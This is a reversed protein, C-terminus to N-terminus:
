RRRRRLMLGLLGLLLFLARSPEPVVVLIGHTAFASTDFKFEGTFGAGTFDFNAETLSTNTGSYSLTTWDMLNFVDGVSPAATTYPLGTRNVVKFLPTAVNDANITFTGSINIFDHNSPATTKYADLQGTTFLAAVTTYSGGALADTLASLDPSGLQETRSTISLQVQGGNQVEVATFNLTRNSGDTDDVGPALITGGGLITSGAISGSGSLKTATGSTYTVNVNGAGTLSGSTGDGIQLTGANVTTTGTHLNTGTLVLTGAGAKTLAGTTATSAGSITLATAAQTVDITSTTAANLTFNRDTDATVGTYQLTGGNFVLNAAASTAQGLNGAVGGNGITGVSLVGDTITTIGTYTNVGSLTVTGVTTKNLPKAGTLVASVSGNRLAFTNVVTISGGGVSDIISGSLTASGLIIDAPTSGTTGAIDLIGGSATETSINLDDMSGTLAGNVGLKVTAARIFIDDGLHVNAANLALTGANVIVDDSASNSFATNITWTGLGSKIIDPGAIQSIVGSIIGDGSGDLTVANAGGTIAGAYTIEAGPTGNARLTTAGALTIARNTTQDTTGVFELITSAALSIGNTGQGLSSAGGGNNSVTTFQLTGEALTIGGSFTNAGTLRITTNSAGWGGADDNIALSYGNGGDSIIGSITTFSDADGGDVSISSNGGLVVGGAINLQTAADNVTFRASAGTGGSGINVQGNQNVVFNAALVASTNDLLYEGITGATFTITGARNITQGNLGRVILRGFGDFTIDGPAVTPSAAATIDVSGSTLTLDGSWTSAANNITFTGVEANGGVQTGVSEDSSVTLSGSGSLVGSLTISRATATNPGNSDAMNIFSNASVNVTGSYIQTGTGASLTGGGLTLNNAVTGATGNYYFAGGTNVAVNATNSNAASGLAGANTIELTGASITVDSTLGTNFTSDAAAFITVKGAGSKTVDKEGQLGGSLILTSAADAVNWTQNAGLKLPAAITVTPPGGTTIKIGDTAVQPAVELRNTTVTGPNITVASPTNAPTTSAEFTLSNIKFNQELTTTIAAGGIINDAIFVVDTGQGPISAAATLGDKNTIAWNAVDNWTDAAGGANWYSAGTILNGTTIRVYTDQVDWTFSTFGGPTAGQIFKGLGFASFGGDAATLLTYTTLPNLGADTMNFTITNGLGLTGGTLLNIRDTQLNDGAVTLDGINLSLTATAAGTVGLSLANVNLISGANDGSLSLISGGGVTVSTIASPTTLGGSLTLASGSGTVSLGTTGNLASAITMTGGTVSTTGQYTLTVGAPIIAAGAGTKTISLAGSGSDTITYVGLGSGFDVAADNSGFILSAATASTNDIVITGASNATLGNITETKGNLDLTATVGVAPSIVVNGSETPSGHAIVENNGLKLTGSSVTLTGANRDSATGGLTLSGTGSYTLGINLATSTTINGNIITDGTGNVTLTMNGTLANFVMNGGVTVTKGTAVGNTFVHGATTNALTWNNTLNLNYDGIFASTGATTTSNVSIANGITRDAGYAFLSGNRLLLTGSGFANDHGAGVLVATVSTTGTYTNNGSLIWTGGMDATIGLTGGNDALVSTIMNGQTNAGRLFLTKAGGVMDNLVNTLILAGSGDAHIQTSGTTTNLRIMRDSTEGTGVYQLIGATTGGNGLTIAQGATNASTNIGVSTGAAAAASNGLSNVVLTGQSVDTVGSYTNSGFLQLVGAGHKKIGTGANGSIVGTITAFDTFTSTNDDVRIARLASAAITASVGTAGATADASLTVTTSSDISLIQAGLPIGAGVVVQGVILGATTGTTFTIRADGDVTTITPSLAGGPATGLSFDSSIEVESLATTSNLVLGSRNDIFGTTVGWVPTSGWNVVLKADSAAFGGQLTATNAAPTQFQFQGSGTGITRSFNGSTELVTGAYTGNNVTPGNFILNSATPLTTGSVARLTGGSITTAGTYSNGTNGLVWVGAGIKTVGTLAGGAPNNLIKIDIRNDGTSAGGLTLTQAVGSAAAGYKIENNAPTSVGALILASQNASANAIQAGAGAMAGNLTFLRDISVSSTGTYNIGATALGAFVLSASNNADSVVTQIGRGIGSATGYNALNPISVLKATTALGTGITTVGTYTNLGSWVPAGTTGNLSVNVVGTGDQIIGAFTGAGTGTGGLLLTAASTSSNTVTGGGDFAGIATGSSQGNLDLTAGQRIVLPANAGSLRASNVGLRITGENITTAGTVQANIGNIVLTGAGNKTFGGTTASAINVPAGLAGLNLVDSAGDVRIVVNVGAASGGITRATGSNSQITATGGSQLIAGTSVTLNGSLTLAQNNTVLSSITAAGSAAAVTLKNHVGAVLAAGANQFNGAAGYTPAIVQNSGNIDAFNAGNIYLHGQFNATGLLTTATAATAGSSLTILGGSSGTTDFNVSTAGATAGLSSFTLNTASPSVSNATLKITAAGATPTLAGLMETTASGSFGVFELTGGASGVTTNANFVVTNGAAEGIITSTTAANAKIKLTGGTITTTGSYTNTGALVWTGVGTKTVSTNNTGTLNDVIVSNIINDATNTGGLTLTKSGVGTATFSAANFIVPNTGSQNANITAGSTTGGLDIVKNTTINAAAPASGNITLIGAGNGTGSFGVRITGSNNTISRFDTIVLTGNNINVAGDLTSGTSTITLIGTGTKALIHDVAAGTALINGTITTNGTGSITMTRSTTDTTSWFNGTFTLPGNLNNAFTNTSDFPSLAVTTGFTIGFGNRGNFTTTETGDFTLAGFTATGNIASSGIAHDAFINSSSGSLRYVNRATTFSDSRVELITTDGVLAIASNSTTGANTGFVAGSSVRVSGGTAGLRVTGSFGTADSPNLILTGAGVKSINGTGSLVGTIEYSGVGAGNAVGFNMLTTNVTGALALNGITLRGSASNVTTNLTGPGNSLSSVSNSRVSLLAAGLAANPGNGQLSVTRTLNVGSTYGGELLLAGGAFGRTASGNVVIASPDSGLAAANSISLIGANITTVGTYSNTANGLRVAGGGTKTLGAAGLIQSDITASEGLNAQLTPTVGDLTLAGGTLTYGSRVFSLSNAFIGSSLTVTSAAPIGLSPFAGSFIALDTNATNVNPWAVDNTSNWWNATSTDWNGTGGLGAGTTANNGAATVDSDWYFTAAQLPQGIQWFAMLVIMLSNIIKRHARLHKMHFFTPSEFCLM